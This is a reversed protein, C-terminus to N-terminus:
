ASVMSLVQRTLAHAATLRRSARGRVGIALPQLGEHRALEVAGPAAIGGHLAAWVGKLLVHQAEPWRDRLLHHTSAGWAVLTPAPGAYARFAHLAASEDLCPVDDTPALGLHGGVPGGGEVLADFPEDGDLTLATLRHLSVRPPQQRRDSHGEAYVVVVRGRPTVLARPIRGDVRLRRRTRPHVGGAEAHAAIQDDIMGDFAALLQDGGRLDPELAELAGVVAEVSSLCEARPEARIRYRSPADPSLRYHPLAQIWPNDRYIRHAHSWTGDIVVLASPRQDAPLATVLRAADSPYLVGAGAPLQPPECRASTTGRGVEHLRVSGLGIRLLRATGIAHRGERYHQVIHVPTRNDLATVRACLCMAAPKDCRYCHPRPADLGM